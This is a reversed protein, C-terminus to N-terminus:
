CTSITQPPYRSTSVHVLGTEGALALVADCDQGAYWLNWTWAVDNLVQASAFDSQAFHAALHVLTLARDFVRLRRDRWAFDETHRWLIEEDIPYLDQPTINWHIEAMVSGGAPLARSLRYEYDYDLQTEVRRSDISEYGLDRLAAFASAADKRRVLLDNDVMARADVRAFLRLALPIGKLVILEIGRRNSRDVIAALDHELLLNRAVQDPSAM